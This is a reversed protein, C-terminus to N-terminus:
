KPLSAAAVSRLIEADAGSPPPVTGSFNTTATPGRLGAVAADYCRAAAEETEFFGLHHVQAM